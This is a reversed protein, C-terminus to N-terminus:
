DLEIFSAGLRPGNAHVSEAGVFETSFQAPINIDSVLERVRM